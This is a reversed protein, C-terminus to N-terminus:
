AACARQAVGRRTLKGPKETSGLPLWIAGSAAWAVKGFRSRTERREQESMERKAFVVNNPDESIRALRRARIVLERAAYFDRAIGSASLILSLRGGFIVEYQDILGEYGAPTHETAFRAYYFADPMNRACMFQALRASSAYLERDFFGEYPRGLLLDRSLMVLTSGAPGIREAEKRLEVSEQAIPNIRLREYYDDEFDRVPALDLKAM